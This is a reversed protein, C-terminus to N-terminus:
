NDVSGRPEYFDEGDLASFATLEENSEYESYLLEVAKELRKEQIEKAYQDIIERIIASVSTNELDAQQDLYEKQQTTILLQIRTSEKPKTLM